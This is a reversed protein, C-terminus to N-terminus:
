ERLAVLAEEIGRWTSYSFFNPWELTEQVATHLHNDWCKTWLAKDVDCVRRRAELLTIALAVTSRSLYRSYNTPDDREGTFGHYIYVEAQKLLGERGKRGMKKPFLTSLLTRFNEMNTEAQHDPQLARVFLQGIEEGSFRVGTSWLSNIWNKRDSEYADLRADLEYLILAEEQPTGNLLNLACMIEDKPQLVYTVLERVADDSLGNVFKEATVANREHNALIDNVRKRLDRIKEPSLGQIRKLLEEELEAASM